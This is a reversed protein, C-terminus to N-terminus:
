ALVRYLLLRVLRPGLLTQLQQESGLVIRQGCASILDVTNSAM